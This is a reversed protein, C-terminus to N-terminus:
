KTDQPHVVLKLGSVENNRLRKMGELAGELGNPINELRNAVITEEALLAPLKEFIKKGFERNAEMQSFGLVHLVKKGSSEVKDKIDDLLTIVMKGGDALINYGAQQSGDASFTDFVVEVPTSTLKKVAAPLDSFSVTKRDITATAGLDKIYSFHHASAYVIINSFGAYRLLQIVYQGVSTSGGIVLATKGNLEKVNQAFTPNLGSGIPENAFLGIAATVFCVPVTAAQSYSLNAPIKATLQAPVRVYQQYGAYENVFKGEFFVRDGKNFGTVGEGVDEVDGAIDLGLIAPYKDDAIYPLERAQIIWDVPNIATTRVKVLLEGKLASTPKPITVVEFSGFKSQLVLAKQSM